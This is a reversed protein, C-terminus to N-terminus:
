RKTNPGLSGKKTNHQENIEQNDTATETIKKAKAPKKMNKNKAM